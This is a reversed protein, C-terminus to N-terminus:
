GIGQDRQCGKKETTADYNGNTIGEQCKKTQVSHHGNKEGSTKPEKKKEGEAAKEVRSEKGEGGGLGKGTVV